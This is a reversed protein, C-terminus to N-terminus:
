GSRRTLLKKITKPNSSVKPYEGIYGLNIRSKNPRDIITIGRRRIHEEGIKRKEECSLSSFKEINMGFSNKIREELEKKCIGLDDKNIYAIYEKNSM